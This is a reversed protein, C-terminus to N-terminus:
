DRGPSRDAERKLDAAKSEADHKVDELSDKARDAAKEGARGVEGDLRGLADKSSDGHMVGSAADKAADGARTLNGEMGPSVRKLLGDIRDRVGANSRYLAYVGGALLVLGWPFSGSSRQKRIKGLEQRIAQLEPAQKGLAAVTAAQQKTLAKAAEAAAKRELHTGASQVTDKVNEITDHISM